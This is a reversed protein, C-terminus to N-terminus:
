RRSPSKPPPHPTHSTHRSLSHVAFALVAHGPTPATRAHSSLPVNSPMVLPAATVGSAARLVVGCCSGSPTLAELWGEPERIPWRATQKPKAAATTAEAQLEPLVLRWRRRPRSRWEIEIVATVPLAPAAAAVVM